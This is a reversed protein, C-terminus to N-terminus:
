KVDKYSQGTIVNYVTSWAKDPAHKLWIEKPTAGSSYEERM